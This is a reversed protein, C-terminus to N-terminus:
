LVTAVFVKTDQVLNAVIANKNAQHAVEDITSWVAALIGLERLMAAFTEGDAGGIRPTIGMEDLSKTLFYIKANSASNNFINSLASPAPEQVVSCMMSLLASLPVENGSRRMKELVIAGSVPLLQRAAVLIQTDGQTLNLQTVVCCQLTKPKICYYILSSSQPFMRTSYFHPRRFDIACLM